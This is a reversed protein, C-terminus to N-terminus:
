TVDAHTQSHLMAALAVVEPNIAAYAVGYWICVCQGVEVIIDSPFHNTWVPVNQQWTNTKDAHPQPLGRWGMASPQATVAPLGKEICISIEIM